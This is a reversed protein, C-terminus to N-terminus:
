SEYSLATQRDSEHQYAWQQLGLILAVSAVTLLSFLLLPSTLLQVAPSADYQYQALLWDIVGFWDLMLWYGATLLPILAHRRLDIGNRSSAPMLLWIFALYTVLSGVIALLITTPDHIDFRLGGQNDGMLLFLLWYGCLVMASERWQGLWLRGFLGQFVRRIAFYLLLNVGLAVPVLLLQLPLNDFILAAIVPDSYAGMYWFLSMVLTNLVGHNLYIEGSHTGLQALLSPSKESPLTLALATIALTLPLTMLYYDAAFSDHGWILWLGEAVALASFLLTALLYLPWPARRFWQIADGRALQYGLCLYFLGFFLPDRSNVFFTHTEPIFIEFSLLAQYSQGSLGIVHLVGALLFLHMTRQFHQALCLLVTAIILATMFWMIEFGLTGHYLAQLWSFPQWHQYGLGDVLLYLLTWVLYMRMLKRVYRWTYGWSDKQSQFFYLYGAVVFFFPVAFRALINLSLYIGNQDEGGYGYFSMYHIVFVAIIAFFKFTDFAYIRPM